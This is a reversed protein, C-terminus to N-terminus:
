QKDLNKCVDCTEDENHVHLLGESDECGVKRVGGSSGFKHQKEANFNLEFDRAVYPTGDELIIDYLALNNEDMRIKWVEGYAQIPLVVVRKGIEDVYKVQGHRPCTMGDKLYFECTGVVMGDATKEVVPCNRPMFNAYSENVRLVEGSKVRITKM